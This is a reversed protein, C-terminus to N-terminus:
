SSAWPQHKPCFWSTRGRIRVQCLTAGDQPCVGGPHRQAVFAGSRSAGREISARATTLLGHHLKRVESPDLSAAPRAPNIGARWLAEDTTLNGLGAVRTQDLLRAKVPEHSDSLAGLLQQVRLTLVDPGLRSLDPDLKVRGFRRPDRVRLDGGGCFLLVVRDWVAGSEDRRPGPAVPDEGDLLVHGNMGLHLGITHESQAISLVLFKGARSVGDFSRGCLLGSLTTASLDQSLYSPDIVQVSCIERGIARALLARYSEIEALEPM